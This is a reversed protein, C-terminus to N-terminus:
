ASTAQLFATTRPQAVSFPRSLAASRGAGGSKQVDTLPAPEVQLFASPELDHSRVSSFSLPWLPSSAFTYRTPQSPNKLYKVDIGLLPMVLSSSDPYQPRSGFLAFGDDVMTETSDKRQAPELNIPATYRNLTGAHLCFTPFTEM